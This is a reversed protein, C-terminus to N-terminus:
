IKTNTDTQFETELIFFKKREKTRKEKDWDPCVSIGIQLLYFATAFKKHAGVGKNEQKPNDLIKSGIAQEKLLLAM